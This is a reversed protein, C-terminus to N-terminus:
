RTAHTTFIKLTALFSIAVFDAEIEAAVEMDQYDKDTLAGASLGGGQKNIGKNNSLEGGTVVETVIQSGNVDLIKLVVRGDDLLLVDGAGCDNPLERYDLGVRTEDGHNPDLEADM